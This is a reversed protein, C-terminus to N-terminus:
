QLSIPYVLLPVERRFKGLLMYVEQGTRVAGMKLYFAEANPDSKIHLEVVGTM